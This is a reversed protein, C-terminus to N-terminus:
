ILWNGLLYYSQLVSVTRNKQLDAFHILQQFFDVAVKFTADIQWYGSALFHPVLNANVFIFMSGHKIRSSAEQWAENPTVGSSILDQRLQVKADDKDEVGRVINVLFQTSRSTMKFMFNPQDCADMFAAVNRPVPPAVRGRERKFIQATKPGLSCGPFSCSKWVFLLPFIHWIKCPIRM